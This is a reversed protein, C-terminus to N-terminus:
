SSQPSQFRSDKRTNMHSVMGFGGGLGLLM